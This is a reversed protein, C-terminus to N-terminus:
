FRPETRATDIFGHSDMEKIVLDYTNQIKSVQGEILMMLTYDDKSQADLYDTAYETALCALGELILWYQQKNM